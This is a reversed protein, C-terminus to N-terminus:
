AAHGGDDSYSEDSQKQSAKQLVHLQTTKLTCTLKAGRPSVFLVKAWTINPNSRYNILETVTGIHAPMVQSTVRDGREVGCADRSALAYATIRPVCGHSATPPVTPTFVSLRLTRTARFKSLDTVPKQFASM